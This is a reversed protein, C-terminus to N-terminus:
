SATSEDDDSDLEVVNRSAHVVTLIRVVRDAERVEYYVTFPHVPYQWLGAKLDDRPRGIFAAASLHEVLKAFDEFFRDAGAPHRAEYWDAADGM